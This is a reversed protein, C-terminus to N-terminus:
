YRRTRYDILKPHERREAEEAAEEPDYAKRSPAFIPKFGVNLIRWWDVKSHSWEGLNETSPKIVRVRLIDGVSTSRAEYVDPKTASITDVTPRETWPYESNQTTVFARELADQTEMDKAFSVHAVFTLDEMRITDRPIATAFQYDVFKSNHFVDILTNSAKILHTDEM